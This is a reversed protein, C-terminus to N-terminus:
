LDHRNLGPVLDRRLRARWEAINALAPDLPQGVTAGFDVFAQLLLDALTFQGGCVYPNTALRQDLLALGDVAVAKMTSAGEPVCRMRNEFMRLGEASRFGTVMPQVYGLDIRRVWMRTVARVAATAGILPPAPQVEELYECIAISESLCTGDDLELLPTGGFPNKCLFDPRRNEGAVIDITETPVTMGKAALFLTVVAPNPGISTYLKM